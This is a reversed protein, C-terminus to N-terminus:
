RSRGIALRVVRAATRRHYGRLLDIVDEVDDRVVRYTRILRENADAVVAERPRLHFFLAGGGVLPEFYQGFSRPARAVLHPVLQRKGGVWKLFPRCPATFTDLKRAEV